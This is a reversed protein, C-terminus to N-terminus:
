NGQLTEKQSSFSIFFCRFCSPFDNDLWHGVLWRENPSFPTKQISLVIEM